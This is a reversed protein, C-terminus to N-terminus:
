MRAGGVLVPDKRILEIPEAPAKHGLGVGLAILFVM